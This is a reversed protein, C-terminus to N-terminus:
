PYSTFYQTIDTKKAYNCLFLLALIVIDPRCFSSPILHSAHLRCVRLVWRFLSSKVQVCFPTFGTQCALISQNQGVFLPLLGKSWVPRSGHSLQLYVCSILLPAQRLPFIGGKTRAEGALSSEFEAVMVKSASFWWIIYGDSVVICCGEWLM